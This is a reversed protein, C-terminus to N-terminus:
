LAFSCAISHWNVAVVPEITTRNLVIEGNTEISIKSFMQGVSACAVIVKKSPRYGSPLTAITVNEAAAGKYVGSLFVENGIKRYRPKQADSYATIGDALTLDLWGSDNLSIEHWEGWASEYYCRQYYSVSAKNCPIYKMILQGANGGSTIVIEGTANNTTPKNLLTGCIAASPIRYVGAATLANLDTSEAIDSATLTAIKAQLTTISTEAATMREQLAVVDDYISM